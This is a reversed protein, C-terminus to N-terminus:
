GIDTTKLARTLPANCWCLRILRSVLRGFGVFVSRWLEGVYSRRRSCDFGNTTVSGTAPIHALLFM